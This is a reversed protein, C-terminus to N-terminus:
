WTYGASVKVRRGDERWVTSAGNMRWVADDDTVNTVNTVGIRYHMMGNAVPMKYTAFLDGTTFPDTTFRRDNSLTDGHHKLGGGISLNDTVNYKTWINFTTQPVIVARKGSIKDTPGDANFYGVIASFKARRTRKKKQRWENM